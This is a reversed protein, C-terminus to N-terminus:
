LWGKKRFYLLIAISIIVQGITAIPYAEPIDLEPMYRFNMGFHTAILTPVM